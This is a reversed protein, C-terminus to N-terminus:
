RRAQGSLAPLVESGTDSSFATSSDKNVKRVQQIFEQILERTVDPIHNYIPTGVNEFLHFYRFSPQLSDALEIASEKSHYPSVDGALVMVPCKINVLMSRFDFSLLEKTNFHKMVDPTQISGELDTIMKRQPNNDFLPLCFNAYDSLSSSDGNQFWNTAASVAKQSDIGKAKAKIELLELFRQFNIRADTDTLIAGAFSEPYNILVSQIVYSGFSSGALIPKHKFDFAESFRKIDNAWQRLNWKDSSSKDSLGNGRQDVFIVPLNDSLTSWFPVMHKHDFGPGGHLVLLCPSDVSPVKDVEKGQVYVVYYLKVDDLNIYPM